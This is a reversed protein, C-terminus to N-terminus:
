IRIEKRIIELDTANYKQLIQMLEITEHKILMSGVCVEEDTLRDKVYVDYYIM